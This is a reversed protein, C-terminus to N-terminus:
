PDSRLMDLLLHTKIANLTGQYDTTVDKLTLFDPETWQEAPVFLPDTPSAVQPELYINSGFGMTSILVNRQPRLTNVLQRVANVRLGPQDTFQMSGSADVVLLLKVPFAVDEAPRTCFQADMEILDDVVPPAGDSIPVLKQNTCALSAVVLVLALRLKM